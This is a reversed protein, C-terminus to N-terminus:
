PQTNYNCSYQGSFSTNSWASIIIQGPLRTVQGISFYARLICIRCFEAPTLYIYLNNRRICLLWCCRSSRPRTCTSSWTADHVSWSLTFTTMLPAQADRLITVTDGGARHSAIEEGAFGSPRSRCRKAQPRASSRAPFAHLRTKSTVVTKADINKM